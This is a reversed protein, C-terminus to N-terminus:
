KDIEEFRSQANMKVLEEDFTCVAPLVAQDRIWRMMDRSGKEYGELYMQKRMDRVVDTMFDVFGAEGPVFDSTGRVGREPLGKFELEYLDAYGRLMRLMDATSHSAMWEEWEEKTTERRVENFPMPFCFRMGSRLAEEIKIKWM